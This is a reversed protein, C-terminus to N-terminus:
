STLAKLEKCHERQVANFDLKAFELITDNPAEQEEYEDIYFRAELRKMFRPLPSKLARVVQKALPSKLNIVKKKLNDRTFNIAEELISENPLLLHAANYLSLLGKTDENLTQKFNGMDDRFKGFEDVHM